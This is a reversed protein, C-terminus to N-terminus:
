KLAGAVIEALDRVEGKTGRGIAKKCLPCATVIVEAGTAELEGAVARAIQVQQGDSIATNAVSSGCCLANERTSAPELLEGVAEIVARPEDYIGSGRGLECPDHYTFRTTGHEPTLRGARILRLIYESHHLVEVGPLDYDERFVKLCIPCSTVLTTIGHRRFLDANYKMMKHASDTEGALKLPRGCCVGGERDAWWVEEGAADFIASMASLTRPTLLTMCGAFYGVKGTGSSRDLGKFYDYRREDPVNRMRDRANLRLTNLDINVPCKEVCRGCMLCNDAVQLRLHGYRRDRLFYVSQVDNIGLVSQLQCPDICIGCRSCAEVQFNDYSSEKECSRVGYRRLFILPVETLIHMYRSFPLAVFFLGLCSSYFWWAVSELTMLPMVGLHAAMWGGISGTLFGGGGYLACTASEAVLRAPFIFWLASLALRDGLVHKTTRRMGMARSWFRKGWALAVGSLIFLLLLDMLFDFVPKHELSTAFYKFFIHGQIPVWRFGLYAMTEIWGTLILLFWGFALSMHMYGLLPNVRFIRRHLLSESVVEGIAAFTRRSPMGRLIRMKDEHPLLWLWKGWKWAVILFMLAAGLIFPLCFPAYFTM